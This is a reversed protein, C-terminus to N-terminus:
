MFISKLIASKKLKLVAHRTVHCRSCEMLTHQHYIFDDKGFKTKYRRNFCDRCIEIDLEGKPIRFFRMVVCRRKRYNRSDRISKKSNEM